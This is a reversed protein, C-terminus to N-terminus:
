RRAELERARRAWVRARLVTNLVLGILVLITVGYAAFVFPWGGDIM